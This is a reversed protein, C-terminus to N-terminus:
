NNDKEHNGETIEGFDGKRQAMAKEMDKTLPENDDVTKQIIQEEESVFDNQLLSEKKLDYLLKTDSIEINASRSEITRSEITTDTITPGVYKGNFIANATNSAYFSPSNNAVKLRIKDSKELELFWSFSLTDLEGSDADAIFQLNKASNKEVIIYCTGKDTNRSIAFSFEYVGEVPATFEGEELNFSSGINTKFGKYPKIVTGNTFKKSGSSPSIYASFIVPTREVYNQLPM